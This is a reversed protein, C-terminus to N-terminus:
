CIDDERVAIWFHRRAPARPAVKTARLREVAPWRHRLFSPRQERVDEAAGTAGPRKGVAVGVAAPTALPAPATDAGRGSERGPRRDRATASSTAAAARRSCPSMSDRTCSSCRSASADSRRGRVRCRSSRMAFPERLLELGDRRQELRQVHARVLHDRGRDRAPGLRPLQRDEFTVLVQEAVPNPALALARQREVEEAASGAPRSRTATKPAPAPRSATSTWWVQPGACVSASSTM